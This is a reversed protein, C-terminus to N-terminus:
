ARNLRAREVVLVDLAAQMTSEIQAACAAVYDSDAAATAGSREFTIPRLVEILIRTPLPFYPLTPGVMFGWPVTWTLPFVKLRFRKAVGTAEALWALDDIVIMTEHAGAAVVPIIPVGHMLALRIYGQRGGFKVRNRDRWPRLSDVDGGPYVMVKNGREFLRAANEPCARVGGIQALIQNFGPFKMAADHALGFPMDRMGRQRFLEAGFLFSDISVTGGSHNGVYLGAGEPIHEIGRVQVRHWKEFFRMLPSLAEILAENRNNLDDIDYFHM